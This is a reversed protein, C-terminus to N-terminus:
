WSLEGVSRISKSYNDNSVGSGENIWHSLWYNTFTQSGVALLVLLIVFPATLGAAKMYSTYTSLSM